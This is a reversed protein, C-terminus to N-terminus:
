ARLTAVSISGDNLYTNLYDAWQQQPSTSGAYAEHAISYALQAADYSASGPAFVEDKLAEYYPNSTNAWTQASADWNSGILGIIYDAYEPRGVEAAGDQPPTPPQPEDGVPSVVTQRLKAVAAAEALLRQADSADMGFYAAVVDMDSSGILDIAYQSVEDASVEIGNDRVLQALISNRAFSLVDDASPTEYSGDALRSGSLSGSGLIADRATIENVTGNYRYVGVVTDLQSESLSGAVPSPVHQQGRQFIYSGGM